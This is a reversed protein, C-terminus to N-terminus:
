EPMRWNIEERKIEGDLYKKIQARRWVLLKRIQEKDPIYESSVIGYYSTKHPNVMRMTGYPVSDFPVDRVSQGNLSNYINTRISSWYSGGKAVCWVRLKEFDEILWQPSCDARPYGNGVYTDGGFQEVFCERAIKRQLQNSAALSEIGSDAQIKENVIAIVKELIDERQINKIVYDSTQLNWVKLLDSRLNSITKSDPHGVTKQIDWLMKNWRRRGQLHEYPDKPPADPQTEIKQHYIQNVIELDAIYDRQTPHEEEGMEKLNEKAYTISSVLAETDEYTLYHEDLTKTYYGHFEVMIAHENYDVGWKVQLNNFINSWESKPIEKIEQAEAEIEEIEKASIVQEVAKVVEKDVEEPIVNDTELKETEVTGVVKFPKKEMIPEAIGEAQAVREALEKVEESVTVLREKENKEVTAELKELSEGAKNLTEQVTRGEAKIKLVKVIDKWLPSSYKKVSAEAESLTMPTFGNDVGLAALARKWRVVHVEGHHVQSAMFQIDSILTRPITKILMDPKSNDIDTQAKEGVLKKYNEQAQQIEPEFSDLASQAKERAKIADEAAQTKAIALDIKKQDKEQQITKTQELEVKDNKRQCLDMYKSLIIGAQDKTGPHSWNEVLSILKSTNGAKLHRILPLYLNMWNPGFFTFEKKIKKYYPKLQKKIERYDQKDLHEFM